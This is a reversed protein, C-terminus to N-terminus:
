RDADWNIFAAWAVLFVVLAVMMYLIQPQYFLGYAMTALAAPIAVLGKMGSVRMWAGVIWM